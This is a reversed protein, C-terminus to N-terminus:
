FGTKSNEPGSHKSYLLNAIKLGDQIRTNMINAALQDTNDDKRNM